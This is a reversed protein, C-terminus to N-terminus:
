DHEPTLGDSQVNRSYYWGLSPSGNVVAFQGRKDGSIYQVLYLTDGVDHLPLIVNAFGPYLRTIM